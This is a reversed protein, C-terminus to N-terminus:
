EINSIYVKIHRLFSILIVIILECMLVVMILEYM